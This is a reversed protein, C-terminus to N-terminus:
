HSPILSHPPNFTALASWEDGHLINAKLLRTQLRHEYGSIESEAHPEKVTIIGTTPCLFLVIFDFNVQIHELSNAFFIFVAIHVQLLM